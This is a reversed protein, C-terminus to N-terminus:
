SSSGIKIKSSLIKNMNNIRETKSLLTCELDRDPNRSTSM